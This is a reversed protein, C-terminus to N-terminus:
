PNSHAKYRDRFVGAVGVLVLAAGGVTWPTIREDLILAGLIVAIVPNVYAHTMAVNSPLLRLIQVFATFGLVSGFLVLYGWAWWAEAIPIPVKDGALTVTVLFGLGGILLQYGSNVEPSLSVKSRSQIVSGMGWSVSAGLLAVSSLVDAQIDSQFSPASLFAIGAFGLVLSLGLLWSPARRDLLAEIFAVWIPSSAIILAALGSDARQEAWGVLGNAITWFLLGCSALVFWEERRPRLRKRRLAGWLMLLGGAVMVRTLGLTFPSFGAGPRVAIRIALYTSGYVIYVFVLNIIGIPDIRAEGRPAVGPDSVEGATGAWKRSGVKM